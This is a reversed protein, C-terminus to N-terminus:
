NCEAFCIADILAEVLKRMRSAQQDRAAELMIRDLLEAGAAKAEEGQVLDHWQVLEVAAKQVEDLVAYAFYDRADRWATAAVMCARHKRWQKTRIFYYGTLLLVFSVANLTANLAPLDSVTM